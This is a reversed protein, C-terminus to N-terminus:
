QITWKLLKYDELKDYNNLVNIEKVEDPQWDGLRFRHSVIRAGKKLTKKMDPAIREALHDGIYLLVVTAESYDTVKLADGARFTVRDGVGAEKANETSKKVLEENIDIGFGKKANFNKVAQIVMRGDGSGIDWVVDDPGVKAWKCMEDVVAAPTPFYIPEIRDKKDPDEKTLDIEVTKGKPITVVRTRIRETYTNPWFHYVVTVSDKGEAPVVKLQRKPGRPESFDKGDVFLKSVREKAYSPPEESTPLTLVLNGDDPDKPPKCGVPVLIVVSLLLIGPLIRRM